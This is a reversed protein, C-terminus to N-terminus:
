KEEGGSQHGMIPDASVGADSWLRSIPDKSSQYFSAFLFFDKWLKREWNERYIGVQSSFIFINQGKREM